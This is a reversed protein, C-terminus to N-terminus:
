MKRSVDSTTRDYRQCIDATLVAVKAYNIGKGERVAAMDRLNFLAARQATISCTQPCYGAVDSQARFKGEKTCLIALNM